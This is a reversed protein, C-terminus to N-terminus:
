RPRTLTSDTTGNGLQGVRNAGWCTVTGDSLRACTHGGGASIATATNAITAAQVIGAGLDSGPIGAGPLLSLCLALAVPLAAVRPLLRWHRSSGRASGSVDTM